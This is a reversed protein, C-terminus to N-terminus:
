SDKPIRINPSLFLKYSYSKTYYGLNADAAGCSAMEMTRINLLWSNGM